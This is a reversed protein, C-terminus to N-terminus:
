ASFVNGKPDTLEGNNRLLLLFAGASALLTFLNKLEMCVDPEYNLFKNLKMIKKWNEM